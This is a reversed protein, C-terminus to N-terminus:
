GNCPYIIKDHLWLAPAHCNECASLATNAVFIESYSPAWQDLFVDGHTVREWYAVVQSRKAESFMPNDRLRQLDSEDLRLPVGKENNIRDAYLNFWAQRAATQCHPCSFFTSNIAPPIFEEPM